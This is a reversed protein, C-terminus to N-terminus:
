NRKGFILKNMNESVRTYQDIFLPDLVVSSDNFSSDLNVRDLKINYNGIKKNLTLPHKTLDNVFVKDMTKFIKIYYNCNLSPELDLIENDKLTKFDEFLSEPTHFAIPGDPGYHFLYVGFGLPIAMVPKVFRGYTVLGVVKAEKKIKTNIIYNENHSRLLVTNDYSLSFEKSRPKYKQLYIVFEEKILNYEQLLKDSIALSMLSRRLREDASYKYFDEWMNQNKIISDVRISAKESELSYTLLGSILDADLLKFCSKLDPKNELTSGPKGIAYIDGEDTITYILAYYSKSENVIMVTPYIANRIVCFGALTLHKTTIYDPAPFVRELEKLKVGEEISTNESLVEDQLRM